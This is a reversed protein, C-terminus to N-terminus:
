MVYHLLEIWLDIEIIIFIFFFICTKNKFISVPLPAAANQITNWIEVFLYRYFRFNKNINAIFKLKTECSFYTIVSIFLLLYRNWFKYDLM